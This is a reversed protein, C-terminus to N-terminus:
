VEGYFKKLKDEYKTRMQFETFYGCWGIAALAILIIAGIGQLLNTEM